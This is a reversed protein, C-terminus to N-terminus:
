GACQGILKAATNSDATLPATNGSCTLNKGIANNIITKETASTNNVIAANRGVIIGIVRVRASNGEIRLNGDIQTTRSGCNASTYVFADGGSGTISVNGTVRTGCIAYDFTFPAIDDVEGGVIGVNGNVIVNILQVMEADQGEVNGNITTTIIFTKSDIEGLVNGNITANSITCTQGAPVVVNPLTGGNITSSCTVSDASAPRALALASLTVFTITAIRSM